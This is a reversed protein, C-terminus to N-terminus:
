GKRSEADNKGLIRSSQSSRASASQVDSASKSNHSPRQRRLSNMLAAIEGRGLDLGPLRGSQRLAQARMAMFPLHIISQRIQNRTMVAGFGEGNGSNLIPRCWETKKSGADQYLQRLAYVFYDAPETFATSNKPVFSWKALKAQGDETLFWDPHEDKLSVIGALAFETYPQYEDQKEFVIELRENRPIARLVNIVLPYICVIYGKLLKQAPTGALLDEYDKVRVGGVVPKLGCKDPLPGLCQLLRRTRDHNWRLGNMHLRQRQGLAKAWLPTLQEWQSQDGLFGAVFMWDKTEHGSEDLYAILM